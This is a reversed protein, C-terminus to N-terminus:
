LYTIIGMKARYQQQKILRWALEAQRNRWPEAFHRHISSAWTCSIALEAYHYARNRPSSAYQGRRNFPLIQHSCFQLLLLLRRKIINLVFREVKCVTYLMCCDAVCPLLSVVCLSDCLVAAVVLNLGSLILQWFCVAGLNQWCGILHAKVECANVLHCWRIVCRYVTRSSM